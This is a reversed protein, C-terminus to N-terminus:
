QKPILEAMGNRAFLDELPKPMFYKFHNDYRDILANQLIAEVFMQEPPVDYSGENYDFIRSVGDEGRQKGDVSLPPCIDNGNIKVTPSLFLRNKEADEPNKIVIESFEIDYGATKLMPRMKEVATKLIPAIREDKDLLSPDLYLYDVRVIKTERISRYGNITELKNLDHRPVWRDNLCIPPCRTEKYRHYNICECCKHHNKCHTAYCPCDDVHANECAM